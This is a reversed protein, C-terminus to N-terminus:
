MANLQIDAWNIKYERMIRQVTKTKKEKIKEKTAENLLPKYPLKKTVMNWIIIALKRATATIAAGRGKKFGIRNFFQVLYGSKKNPITNAADRLAQAMKNTGKRTHSSIIKGGTIKNEPVLRLWATFQKATKFKYIDMGVESIFTLVTNVNISEIAFLDVGFLKYAHEHINFRVQNKGRIDKHTLHIEPELVVDETYSTFLADMKADCQKIHEQLNKYLTYNESLEFLLEEHYQGQLADAIEEKSKKVRDHALAALAKGDREGALIAELIKKGSVGMIDSIAVDLRLNMLRLSKQIRNILKAGDEVLSRRHRAFVRVKATFEGPLYCGQLLGLSHLKQIWRADKVDTKGGFNKVHSGQVLKVEFGADQLVLFLSQWYSGTSEMAISSIGHQKLYGILAQQGSSYVNFEKLDEPGQGVAVYHSRSGVDIGAAHPNVIHMEMKKQM